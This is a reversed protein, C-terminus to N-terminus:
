AVMFAKCIKHLQFKEFIEPISVTKARPWFWGTPWPALIFTNVTCLFLNWKMERWTTETHVSFVLAARLCLNEESSTTAEQLKEWARDSTSYKALIVGAEKPDRPMLCFCKEICSQFNIKQVVLRDNISIWGKFVTYTLTTCDFYTLM